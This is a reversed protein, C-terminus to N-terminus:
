TKKKKQSIWPHGQDVSLLCHYVGFQLCCVSCIVLVSRFLTPHPSVQESKVPGHWTMGKLCLCFSQHATRWGRILDLVTFDVSLHAESAARWTVCRDDWVLMFMWTHICCLAASGLSRLSSKVFYWTMPGCRFGYNKQLYHLSLDTVSTMSDISFLVLFCLQLQAYKRIQVHEALWM